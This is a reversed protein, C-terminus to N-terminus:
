NLHFIFIIIIIIFISVGPEGASCLLSGHQLNLISLIVAFLLYIM